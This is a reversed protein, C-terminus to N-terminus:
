PPFYQPRVGSSTWGSRAPVYGTVKTSARFAGRSEPSFVTAQGRLQDVRSPGPRVGNCQYQRDRVDRHIVRLEGLPYLADFFPDTSARFRLLRGGRACRLPSSMYRYSSVALGSAAVIADDYTFNRDITMLIGDFFQPTWPFFQAGKSSSFFIACFISWFCFTM